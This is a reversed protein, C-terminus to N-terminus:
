SVSLPFGTYLLKQPFHPFHTQVILMRRTLSLLYSFLASLSIYWGWEIPSQQKGLCLRTSSPSIGSFGVAPPRLTQIAYVGTAPCDHHSQSTHSSIPPDQYSVCPIIGLISSPWIIFLLNFSLTPRHLFSQDPGCFFHGQHGLHMTILTFM